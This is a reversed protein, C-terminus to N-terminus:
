VIPCSYPEVGICGQVYFALFSFVQAADAQITLSVKFYRRVLVQREYHLCTGM